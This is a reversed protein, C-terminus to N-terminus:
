PTDVRRAQSAVGVLNIRRVGDRYLRIFVDVSGACTHLYHRYAEGQKYDPPAIYLAWLLGFAFLILTVSFLWPQAGTTWRYFFPLTGWRYFTRIDM